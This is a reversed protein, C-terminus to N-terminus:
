FKNQFIVLGPSNLWGKWDIKDLADKKESGFNKEMFSYLFNKWEDTTISKGAFEKVHARM